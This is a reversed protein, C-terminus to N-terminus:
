YYLNNDNNDDTDVIYNDDNGDDVFGRQAAVMPNAFRRVTDCCSFEIWRFTRLALWRDTYEITKQEIDKGRFIIEVAGKAGM